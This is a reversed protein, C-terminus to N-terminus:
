SVYLTISVSANAEIQYCIVSGVYHFVLHVYITKCKLVVYGHVQQGFVRTLGTPM